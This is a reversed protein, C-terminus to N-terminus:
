GMVPKFPSKPNWSNSARLKHLRDPQWRWGGATKVWGLLYGQYENRNSAERYQSVTIINWIFLYALLCTLLCTVSKQLPTPSTVYNQLESKPKKETKTSKCSWVHLRFIATPIAVLSHTQCDPTWIGSPALSKEGWFFDLGARSGLVTKGQVYLLRPTTIFVSRRRPGLKFYAFSHKQEGRQKWPTSLFPKAM